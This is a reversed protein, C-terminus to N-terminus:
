PTKIKSSSLLFFVVCYALFLFVGLSISVGLTQAHTLPDSLRSLVDAFVARPQTFVEWSNWRAFRGLYVGFGSLVNVAIVFIWTLIGSVRERLVRQVLCLSIFGLMLGTWACSAILFVDYWLPVGIRQRLHLFDTVIYAANPYFLLWLVGACLLLIRHHHAPRLLHLMLLSALFPVWALIVNWLLFFFTIEGTYFIRASVLIVCWLSCASLALIM